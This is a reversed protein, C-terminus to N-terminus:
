MSFLVGGQEHTKNTKTMTSLFQDESTPNNWDGNNLTNRGCVDRAIENNNNFICEDKNGYKWDICLAISTPNMSPHMSVNLNESTTMM